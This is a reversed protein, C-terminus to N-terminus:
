GRTSRSCRRWWRSCRTSWRARGTALLGMWCLAVLALLVQAAAISVQLAAVFGFLLWVAIRDLAARKM